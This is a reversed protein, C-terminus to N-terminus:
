RDRFGATGYSFHKTSSRHYSKTAIDVVATYAADINMKELIKLYAFSSIWNFVHAILSQEGTSRTSALSKWTHSPLPNIPASNLKLLFRSQNGFNKKVRSASIHGLGAM